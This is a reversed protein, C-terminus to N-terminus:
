ADVELSTRELLRDFERELRLSPFETTKRQKRSNQWDSILKDIGHAPAFEGRPDRAAIEWFTLAGVRASFDATLRDKFQTLAAAIAESEESAAILDQKTVVVQVVADTGLAENDIFVRLTQRVSQIAGARETPIAVKGGDLLLVIRDAGQVEDLTSVVETKDRARQYIEGARDSLMIDTRQSPSASPAIAFHFYRLGESTSTRPTDPVLRGSDARSYHASRDLAVLTQSGAFHLGAYPGKLFKDYLASVFTTKGSFSDGVMAVFFADRSLLFRVVEDPSLAEGSPLDLEVSTSDARDSEEAYDEDTTDITSAEEQGYYPCSDLPDHGEACAGTELVLCDPNSCDLHQSEQAM